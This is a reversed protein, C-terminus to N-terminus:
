PSGRPLANEGAWAALAAALVLDDHPTERWAAADPTLIVRPRYAELERVLTGADPLSSAIQLRRTQLLVQLTGVVDSKPIAYGGTPGTTAAGGATLVVQSFTCDVRGRFRDRILDLVANGVGTIDALLVARHIPPTQLLGAVAEIVTPYSTSPPFRHLHRLGYTPRFGPPDDPTLRPRDLVAMATALGPTGLDLGIFYRTLM